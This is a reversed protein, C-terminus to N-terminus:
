AETISLQSDDLKELKFKQPKKGARLVSKALPVSVERQITRQIERAGFQDFDSSNLISDLIDNSAKGLSHGRIEILKSVDKLEKEVIRRASDASLQNFVVIEDIRNIFEIKLYNKLASKAIRELEETTKASSGIEGFGIGRASMEASGLNSTMVIVCNSFDVVKGSGTTMRGADLVQLFADWTSAKAKEIEDLIILSHPHKAVERTLMGGDESYGIYGPTSGFLSTTAGETSFESMDLRIVNLPDTYLNEALQLSLETKGVGTPGLFLMTRLPKKASHTGAAPISLADVVKGIARDQGIISKKLNKELAAISRFKGRFKSNKEVSKPEKKEGFAGFSEDMNDVDFGLAEVAARMEEPSNASVTVTAGGSNSEETQIAHAIRHAEDVLHRCQDAAKEIAENIEDKSINEPNSRSSVIQVFRRAIVAVQSPIVMLYPDKPDGDEYRMAACIGMLYNVIGIIHKPLLDIKYTEKLKEHQAAHVMNVIDRRRLYISSVDFSEFGSWVSTMGSNQATLMANLMPEPAELVVRVDTGSDAIRGAVETHDTFVCIESLEVEMDKAVLKFYDGISDFHPAFENFDSRSIRLPLFNGLEYAELFRGASYLMQAGFFSKGSQGGGTLIIKGGDSDFLSFVAQELADRYNEPLSNFDLEKVSDRPDYINIPASPRNGSPTEEVKSVGRM